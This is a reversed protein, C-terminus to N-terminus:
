TRMDKTDDVIGKRRKLGSAEAVTHMRSGVRDASLQTSDTSLHSNDDVDDESDAAGEDESEISQRKDCGTSIAAKRKTGARRMPRSQRMGVFIASPTAKPVTTKKASKHNM